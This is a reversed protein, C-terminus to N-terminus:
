LCARLPEAADRVCLREAAAEDILMMVIMVM